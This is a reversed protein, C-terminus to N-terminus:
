GTNIFCLFVSNQWQLEVRHKARLLLQTTTTTVDDNERLIGGECKVHCSLPHRFLVFVGGRVSEFTQMKSPHCHRGQTFSRGFQLLIKVSQDFHMTTYVSVKSCGPRSELKTELPYHICGILSCSTSGIYVSCVAESCLKIFM